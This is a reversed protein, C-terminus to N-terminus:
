IASRDVVSLRNTLSSAPTLGEHIYYMEWDTGAFYYFKDKSMNRFAELINKVDKDKENYYVTIVRGDKEFHRIDSHWDKQQPMVSLRYGDMVLYYTLFSIANYTIVTIDSISNNNIAHTIMVRENKEDNKIYKWYFPTFFSGTLPMLEDATPIIQGVGIGLSCETQNPLSFSTLDLVPYPHQVAYTKSIWPKSVPTISISVLNYLVFLFILPTIIYIYHKKTLNKLSYIAYSALIVVFPLIYLLHKTANGFDRLVYYSLLIPLCALLLCKIQRDRILKITGLAILLFNFFTYFTINIIIFKDSFIRNEVYKQFSDFTSLPNSSLIWFIFSISIITTVAYLTSYLLAKTWSEKLLLLPFVVPYIMLVDVRFLPALILLVTSYANWSRYYIILYFGLLSTAAAFVATNPYSSIAYSEPFLFLILMVYEWRTKLLRSVFSSILFLYGITCLFTLSCYIQECTFVPVIHKILVILFSILPQMDWEYSFSPPIQIGNKWMLECGTILNISDSEFNVVPFLGILWWGFLLLLIVRILLIKNTLCLNRDNTQNM